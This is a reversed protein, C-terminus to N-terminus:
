SPESGQKTAASELHAIRGALERSMHKGPRDVFGKTKMIASVAAELDRTVALAKADLAQDFDMRNAEIRMLVVTFAVFVIVGIALVWPWHSEAALLWSVACGATAGLVFQVWIPLRRPPKQQEMRLLERALLFDAEAPGLKLLAGTSIRIVGEMGLVNVGSDWGSGNWNCVDPAAVGIKEALVRAWGTWNEQLHGRTGVVASIFFPMPLLYAFILFTPPSSQFFFGDCYLTSLLLGVFTPRVRCLNTWFPRRPSDILRAQLLACFYPAYLLLGFMATSSSTNGFWALLPSGLVDGYYTAQLWLTFVGVVISAPYAV